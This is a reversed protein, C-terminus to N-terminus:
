DGDLEKGGQVSKQVESAVEASEGCPRQVGKVPCEPRFKTKDKKPAARRIGTKKQM